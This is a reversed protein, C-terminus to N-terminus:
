DDVIWKGIINGSKKGNKDVVIVRRHENVQDSNGYKTVYKRNREIWRSSIVLDDGIPIPNATNIRPDYKHQNINKIVVSKVQNHISLPDGIVIGNAVTIISSEKGGDKFIDKVSPNIDVLSKKIVSDLQKGKIAYMAKRNKENM